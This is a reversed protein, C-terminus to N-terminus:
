FIFVSQFTHTVNFLFELATDTMEFCNSNVSIDLYVNRFM